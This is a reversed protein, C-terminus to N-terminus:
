RQVDRVEDATCGLGLPRVEQDPRRRENGLRPAVDFDEGDDDQRLYAGAVHSHQHTVPPAREHETVQLISLAGGTAAHTLLTEVLSGIFWRAEGEGARTITPDLTETTM